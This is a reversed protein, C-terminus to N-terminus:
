LRSIEFFAVVEHLINMALGQGLASRKGLFCHGFVVFGFGWVNHVWISLFPASISGMMWLASISVM